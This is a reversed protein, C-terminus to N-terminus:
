SAPAVEPVLTILSNSSEALEAISVRGRQRIFKAVGELETQSIYIFKGRDDIVGTLTGEKLLENVRDIAATTKLKFRAALDELVVVKENKVYDIFEQLLNRQQDEDQAEDFGEEEVSFQTKLAMYEELERKEKEERERQEEEEQRAEEAKERADDKLREEAEKELRQTKDERQQEEAERNARKDAKAQLKLLKKKGVKGDPLVIDDDVAAEDSDSEQNQRAQAARMRARANRNAAARNPPQAARNGDDENIRPGRPRAGQGTDQDTDDKKFFVLFGLIIAVITALIAYIVLESM